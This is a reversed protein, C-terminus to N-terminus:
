SPEPLLAFNRSFRKLYLLYICTCPIRNASRAPALNKSRVV